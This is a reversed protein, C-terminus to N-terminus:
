TASSRAARSSSRRRPPCTPAGPSSWRSSRCGTRRARDRADAADQAAVVPQERRGQRDPRQRDAPVGGRQGRRDRRRRQRGRHVGLRLRGARGAGPVALGPRAAARDARPRDDQGPRPAPRRGERRRRRRGQRDRGRDRGARRAHVAPRRPERRARSHVAPRDSRGGVPIPFTSTGRACGSASGRPRRTSAPTSLRRGARAAGRHRRQGGSHEAAPHDPGAAGGDGPAARARDGRHDSRGAVPVGRRRAGVPGVNADGGKDGSRAGALTGLPLRRAPGAPRDTRSCVMSAPRSATRAARRRDAPRDARRDRRRAGGRARAGGAARFGATFVGYPQARGPPTTSFFGPYSGLAVEVAANSFARGAVKEDADRAVVTLLASAQQQTPADPADLRALTWTVEAPRDSRRGRVPPPVARGQGRHRARDARRDDRQPLRRDLHLSVKLDPPPPEGRVGTIEVRDPGPRGCPSPTSAPPSTPVPTAPTAWRTCSSPPSRASPSRAAPGPTNPSSAPATRPPARRDPLRPPAPRRARHLVSYNGGTAQTGCEIVHGAVTAGALADLDARGWGFHAIAPGVALSADTVRGTVVVDAGAELARAIGFAGSIRTRGSRDGLGADAQRTLDDGRVLAIKATSGWSASRRSWAPRTSGARTPSSACAAIWPSGCATRSSSSSRGRTAPPPTAARDRGLILM